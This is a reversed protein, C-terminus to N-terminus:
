LKTSNADPGPKTLIDVPKTLIIAAIRCVSKM